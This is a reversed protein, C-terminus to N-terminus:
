YFGFLMSHPQSHFDTTSPKGLMHSVRLKFCLGGEVGRGGFFFGSNLDEGPSISHTRVKESSM